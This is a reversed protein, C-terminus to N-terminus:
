IAYPEESRLRGRVSTCYAAVGHGSPNHYGPPALETRAQRACIDSLTSSCASMHPILAAHRMADSGLEATQEDGKGAIRTSAVVGLQPVCTLGCIPWPQFHDTADCLMTKACATSCAQKKSSASQASGDVVPASAVVREEAGLLAVWASGGIGGCDCSCGTTPSCRISRLPSAM